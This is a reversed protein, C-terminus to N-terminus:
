VAEVGWFYYNPKEKPAKYKFKVWLNDEFRLPEVVFAPDREFSRLILQDLLKRELEERKEVLQRVTKRLQEADGRAEDLQLRRVNATRVAENRQEKYRARDRVAQALEGRLAKVKQEEEYRDACANAAEVKSQDLMKNLDAAYDRLNVADGRWADARENARGLANNLRAVEQRRKEALESTEDLRKRYYDSSEQAQKLASATAEFDKELAGIFRRAEELKAATESFAEHAFSCQHVYGRALYLRDLVNGLMARLHEMPKPPPASATDTVSAM